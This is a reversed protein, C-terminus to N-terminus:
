SKGIGWPESISMAIDKPIREFKFLIMQPPMQGGINGSFLLTLCEKEDNNVM